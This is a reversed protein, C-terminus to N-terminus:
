FDSSGNLLLVKLTFLMVFTFLGGLALFFRHERFENAAAMGRDMAEVRSVHLWWLLFALIICACLLVVAAIAHASLLAISFVSLLSVVHM